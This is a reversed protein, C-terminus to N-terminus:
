AAVEGPVTESRNECEVLLEVDLLIKVQANLKAMGQIYRTHTKGTAPPAEIDDQAISVVESVKDVVLGVFSGNVNVVIICTREDYHRFALHFRLRVDVVPIVKGRLNIVGIAHEPMGPVKTVKQMGMIETVHRIELGYGEAALDFTLYMGEMSDQDIPLKGPIDEAVDTM